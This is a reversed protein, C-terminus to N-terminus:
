VYGGKQKQDGGIQEALGDMLLFFSRSSLNKAARSSPMKELALSLLLHSFSLEILHDKARSPLERPVMPRQSRLPPVCNLSKVGRVCVCMSSSSSLLTGEPLSRQDSALEGWEHCTKITYKAKEKM